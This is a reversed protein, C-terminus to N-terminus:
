SFFPLFVFCFSILPSTHWFHICGPPLITTWLGDKWPNLTEGHHIRALIRCSRLAETLKPLADATSAANLTALGSIHFSSLWTRAEEHAIFEGDYLHTFAPILPKNHPLSQHSLTPHPNWPLPHLPLASDSPIAPPTKPYPVM